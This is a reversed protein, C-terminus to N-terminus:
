EKIKNIESHIEGDELRTVLVDGVQVQQTNKVIEGQKFSISYGRALTALPSVTDLLHMNNLLKQQKNDILQKCSRQLKTQLEQLRIQHRQLLRQPSSLSLRSYIHEQRQKA